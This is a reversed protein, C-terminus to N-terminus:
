VPGIVRTSKKNRKAKVLMKMWIPCEHNINRYHCLCDPCIKNGDEDYEPINEM